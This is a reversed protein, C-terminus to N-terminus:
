KQVKLFLFKWYRWNWTDTSKIGFEANQLLKKMESLTQTKIHESTSWSIIQNVIKFWGSRNWDLLYLNGGPKLIDFFLDLVQPHNHYFHFSNLCFISDFTHNEYPLFEAKYNSYSVKPQDELRKQAISLMQISPDNIVLEGFPYKREILTLALLGTGGSVDLIIDNPNTELRSLFERHTHELYKKWRDEYDKARQNYNEITSTTMAMM